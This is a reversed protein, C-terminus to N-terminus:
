ASCEATVGYKPPLRNSEDLDLLARDQHHKTEPSLSPVRRLHEPTRDSPFFWQGNRVAAVISGVLEAAEPGLVGGTSLFDLVDLAGERRAKDIVAAQASKDSCARHEPRWNSVSWIREPAVSRAVRHGVVWPQDATVIAGCQGCPAPLWTAVIQRAAQARRGSWGDATSM